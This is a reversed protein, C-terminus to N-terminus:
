LSEQRSKNLIELCKTYEGKNKSIYKGADAKTLSWTDDASLVDHEGGVVKDYDSLVQRIGLVFRIQKDTAIDAM